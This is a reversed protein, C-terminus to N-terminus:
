TIPQLGDKTNEYLWYGMTNNLYELADNYCTDSDEPTWGTATDGHTDKWGLQEAFEIIHGYSAEDESFIILPM